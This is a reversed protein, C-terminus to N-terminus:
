RSASGILPGTSALIDFVMVATKELALFTRAAGSIGQPSQTVGLVGCVLRDRALGLAM